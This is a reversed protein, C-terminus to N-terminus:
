RLMCTESNLIHSEKTENRLLVCSDVCWGFGAMGFFRVIGVFFNCLVIRVKRSIGSGEDLKLCKSFRSFWCVVVFDVVWLFRWFHCEVGEYGVDPGGERGGWWRLFSAAAGCGEGWVCDLGDVVPIAAVAAAM